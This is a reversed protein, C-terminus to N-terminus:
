EKFDSLYIFEEKTLKSALNIAHNVLQDKTLKIGEEKMSEKLDDLNSKTDKHLWFSQQSFGQEKMNLKFKQARTLKKVEEM